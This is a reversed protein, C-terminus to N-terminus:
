RPTDDWGRGPAMIGAPDLVDKLRRQIAPAPVSAAGLGGEGRIVPAVGGLDRARARVRELDDDSGVPIWALGVGMSARYRDSGELLGALRSPVVAAEVLTPADPFPAEPFPTDDDIEFGTIGRAAETQEEVEKPWGEVRVLVRSPEALVAAPLPVAELLRRGLELGGDGTILTRGAKPLPRVKLAVQTICGLTGHSGTLLRHVDFGTVNKVVRAGSKIRRGDGTVVEMEVVTDRMTGVRLQRIPDIAAAIVGGVTADDGEDLPWEQGGEALLIRLDRLRIGADVVVLMEAPDYAVVGDLLTTWLETDVDAPNGKDIHTRGGVVLVTTGDRSAAVLADQVDRTSHPHILDV